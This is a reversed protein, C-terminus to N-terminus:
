PGPQGDWSLPLPGPDKDLIRTIWDAPPERRLTFTLQRTRQHEEMDLYGEDALSCLMGFTHSPTSIPHAGASPIYPNLDKAMFPGPSEPLFEERLARYIGEFYSRAFSVWELPDTIAFRGHPPLVLDVRYTEFFKKLIRVSRLYREFAMSYVQGAVTFIPIVYQHTSPDEPDGKCIMTDGPVVVRLERDWYLVCDHSHGPTYLAAIGGPLRGHDVFRLAQKPTREFYGAYRKRIANELIEEDSLSSYDLLGWQSRARFLEYTEQLFSSAPQTLFRYGASHLHVPCREDDPRGHRAIVGAAGAHDGHCHTVLVADLRDVGRELLADTVMKVVDPRSVSTEFLFTGSPGRRLVLNIYKPSPYGSLVSLVAVRDTLGLAEIAEATPIM